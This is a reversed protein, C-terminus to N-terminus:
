NEAEPSDRSKRQPGFDRDAPENGVKCAVTSFVANAQKTERNEVGAPALVFGDDVWTMEVPERDVRPPDATVEDWDDAVDDTWQM